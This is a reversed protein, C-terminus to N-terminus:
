LSIMHFDTNCVPEYGTSELLRQWCEVVIMSWDYKNMKTTGWLKLTMGTKIIWPPPPEIKPSKTAILVRLSPLLCVANPIKQLESNKRLYIRQLSTMGEVVHDRTTLLNGGPRLIRATKLKRFSQPLSKLKNGYLRLRVRHRLNGIGRRWIDITCSTYPPWVRWQKSSLM